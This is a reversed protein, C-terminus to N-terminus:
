HEKYKKILEKLLIQQQKTNLTSNQDPINMYSILIKIYMLQCM